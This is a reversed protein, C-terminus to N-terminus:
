RLLTTDRRVRTKSRLSDAAMKTSDRLLLTDIKILLGIRERDHRMCATRISDARIGGVALSDILIGCAIRTSDTRAAVRVSDMLAVARGVVNERRAAETAADAWAASLVRSLREEAGAFAEANTTGGIASVYPNDPYSELRARLAPATDAPVLELAALLAKPAWVTQPAVEAYTLFLRGALQPAHLRDRAHEAAAFLLLPQGTQSSREVLVDLTRLDHVLTRAAEDGLAPLLVARVRELEGLSRAAALRWRAARVRAYDSSAGSGRAALREAASVAGATDGALLSLEAAFLLVSDRAASRWAGNEASLLVSRVFAPSFRDSLARASARLAGSWREARSDNLLALFARRATVSDAAAVAVDAEVLAIEANPGDGGRKRAAALDALAADHRGARAHLRARTLLGQAVIDGPAAPAKLAQELRAFAADPSGVEAEIMGLQIDATSRVKEDAASALTTELAQRAGAYEGLALKARAILLQADDTWRSTPHKALSRNAKEIAGRYATEAAPADGRARAKEADAFLRNANYMSNFYACAPTALMLLLPLARLARRAMWDPFSIM